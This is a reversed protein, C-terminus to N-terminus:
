LEDNYLMKRNVGLTRAAKCKNGSAEKLARRKIYVRFKRIMEEYSDSDYDIDMMKLPDTEPKIIIKPLIEVVIKDIENYM